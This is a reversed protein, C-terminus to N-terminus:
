PFRCKFVFVFFFSVANLPYWVHFQLFHEVTDMCQLKCLLNICLWIACRGSAVVNVIYMIIESIFCDSFLSGACGMLHVCLCLTQAGFYVCTCYALMGYHAELFLLSCLHDSFENNVLASFYM